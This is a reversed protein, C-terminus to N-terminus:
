EWAAMTNYYFDPDNVTAGRQACIQAAFQMARRLIVQTSWRQILGYVTVASFADGAGVSDVFTPLQPPAEQYTAAATAIMAGQAGLTVILMNLAFESRVQQAISVLNDPDIQQEVLLALEDSNLKVWSAGRMTQIVLERDWWPTRLNVDIFVPLDSADRLDQLAQRSTTNRAILSGHYLLPAPFTKIAALVVTSDIYDYAQDPLISFHPQNNKIEVQVTGTPYVDDLQVGSTLLGWQQMAQLIQEGCSDHGIRSVFFPACGFGQLHWAVNFPAGGLVEVGEPFKDFLVEGFVIPGRVSTTDASHNM